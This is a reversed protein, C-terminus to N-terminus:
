SFSAARKCVDQVTSVRDDEDASFFSGGPIKCGKKKNIKKERETGPSAMWWWKNDLPRLKSACGRAVNNDVGLTTSIAVIRVARICPLMDVAVHLHLCAVLGVHHIPRRVLWM